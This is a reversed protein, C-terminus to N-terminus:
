ALTGFSNFLIFIFWFLLCFCPKQVITRYKLALVVLESVPKHIKISLQMMLVPGSSKVRLFRHFVHFKRGFFSVIGNGLLMINTVYMKRIGSICIGKSFASFIIKYSLFCPHWLVFSWLLETYTLLRGAGVRLLRSNGYCLLAADIFVPMLQNLRCDSQSFRSLLLKCLLSAGLKPARAEYKKM